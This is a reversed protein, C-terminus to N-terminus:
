ETKVGTVAVKLGRGAELSGTNLVYVEFEADDPVYLTQLVAPTISGVSTKSGPDIHIPTSFLSVGNMHLDIVLDSGEPATTLSCRVYGLTLDLPYPARFTTIPTGRVTLPDWESHYADAAIITDFWSNQDEGKPGQPGPPGQNPGTKCTFLALNQQPMVMLGSKEVSKIYNVPRNWADPRLFIM